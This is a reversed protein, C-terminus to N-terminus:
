LLHAKNLSGQHNLFVYLIEPEDSQPFSPNKQMDQNMHQVTHPFKHDINECHAKINGTQLLPVPFAKEYSQREKTYQIQRKPAHASPIPFAVAFLRINQLFPPNHVPDLFTCSCHRIGRILFRRKQVPQFIKGIM